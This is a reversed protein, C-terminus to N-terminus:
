GHFMWKILPDAILLLFLFIPLLVIMLGVFKSDSQNM